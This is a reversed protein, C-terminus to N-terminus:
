NPPPELLNAILAILFLGVWFLLGLTGVVLCWSVRGSGELEDHHEVIVRRARIGNRLAIFSGIGMLWTISFIVGWKLLNDVHEQLPRLYEERAPDLAATDDEIHLDVPEEPSEESSDRFSRLVRPGYYVALGVVVIVFLWGVWQDYEKEV